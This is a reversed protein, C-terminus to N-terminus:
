RYTARNYIEFCEDHFRLAISEQLLVSFSSDDATLNDGCGDCRGKEKTEPRVSVWRPRPLHGSAVRSATASKREEPLMVSRALVDGGRFTAYSDLLGVYASAVYRPVRRSVRKVLHCVYTECNDRVRVEIGVGRTAVTRSPCSQDSVIWRKTGHSDVVTRSSTSLPRRVPDKLAIAAYALARGRRGGSSALM